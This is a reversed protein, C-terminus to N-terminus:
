TKNEGGNDNAEDKEEPISIGFTQINDIIIPYKNKNVFVLVAKAGVSLKSAIVSTVNVKMGNAFEILRDTPNSINSFRNSLKIGVVTSAFAQYKGSLVQSTILSELFIKMISLACLPCAIAIILLSNGRVDQGPVNPELNSFAIVITTILFFIWLLMRAVCGSKELIKTKPIHVNQVNSQDHM